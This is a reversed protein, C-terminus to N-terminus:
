YGEKGPKKVEIIIRPHEKVEDEYVVIDAKKSAYASGM